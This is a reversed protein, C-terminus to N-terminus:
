IFKRMQYYRTSTSEIILKSLLLIVANHGFLQKVKVTQRIQDWLTSGSDLYRGQITYLRVYKDLNLNATLTLGLYNDLISRQSLERLSNDLITTQSLQRLYNDLITTQSLQRLYNDLITQSLNSLYSQTLKCQTIIYKSISSLEQRTTPHHHHFAM